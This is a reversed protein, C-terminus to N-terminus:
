CVFWTFYRSATRLASPDKRPIETCLMGHVSLWSASAKALAAVLLLTRGGSAKKLTRWLDVTPVKLPTTTKMRGMLSISRLAGEEGEYVSCLIRVVGDLEAVNLLM